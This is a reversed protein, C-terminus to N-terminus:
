SNVCIKGRRVLNISTSNVSSRAETAISIVQIRERANELLDKDITNTAIFQKYALNLNNMTEIFEIIVSDKDSM